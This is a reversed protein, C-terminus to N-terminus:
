FYEFYGTRLAACEMHVEGECKSAINMASLPAKETMKGGSKTPVEKSAESCAADAGGRNAFFHRSFDGNGGIFM